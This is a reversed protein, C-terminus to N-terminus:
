THSHRLSVNTDESEHLLIFTYNCVIPDSVCYIITMLISLPRLNNQEGLGIEAFCRSRFNGYLIVIFCFYHYANGIVDTNSRTLVLM